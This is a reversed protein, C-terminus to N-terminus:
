ADRESDAHEDENGVATAAVTAGLLDADVVREESDAVEDEAHREPSDGRADQLVALVVAAVLVHPAPCANLVLAGRKVPVLDVISEDAPKLYTM